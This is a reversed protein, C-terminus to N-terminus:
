PYQTLTVAEWKDNKTFDHMQKYNKIIYLYSAILSFLGICKGLDDNPECCGKVLANSTFTNFFFGSVILLLNVQHVTLLV